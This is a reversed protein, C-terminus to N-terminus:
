HQVAEWFRRAQKERGLTFTLKSIFTLKTLSTRLNDAQILSKSKWFTYNKSSTAPVSPDQTNTRTKFYFAAAPRLEEIVLFIIHHSVSLSFLGIILETFFHKAM